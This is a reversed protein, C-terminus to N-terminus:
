NNLAGEAVWNEIKEINCELLKSRNQPMPPFGPEHRIVGLLKGNNVYTILNEYSDLTVNGNNAAANHCEYCNASLIPVIDMSYSMDTSECGLMPYLEEEVDYYCGGVLVAIACALFIKIIPHEM